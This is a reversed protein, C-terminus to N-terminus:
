RFIRDGQEDIMQKAKRVSLAEAEDFSRSTDARMLHHVKVEGAVEKEIRAAVRYGASESAPAAFIRFDKYIESPEAPAEPAKPRGGGFLKSLISM